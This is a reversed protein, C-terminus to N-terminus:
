NFLLYKYRGIQVDNPFQSSVSVTFVPSVRKDKDNTSLLLKFRIMNLTRKFQILSHFLNFIRPFSILNSHKYM